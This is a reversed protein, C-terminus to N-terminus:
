TSASEKRQLRGLALRIFDRVFENKETNLAQNLHEVARSGGIKKLALVAEQRVFRNEDKLVPILADIVREDETSGLLEAASQRTGSDKNGLQKTLKTIDKM